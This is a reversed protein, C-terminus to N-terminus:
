VPVWRDERDCVCLDKPKKRTQGPRRDGTHGGSFKSYTKGTCGLTDSSNLDRRNLTEDRIIVVGM